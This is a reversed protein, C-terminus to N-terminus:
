RKWSLTLTGAVPWPQNNDVAFAPGSGLSDVPVPTTQVQAGPATPGLYRTSKIGRRLLEIGLGASLFVQKIGEGVYAKHIDGANGPSTAELEDEHVTYSQPLPLRARKHLKSNMAIEVSVGDGVNKLQVTVGTRVTFHYSVM